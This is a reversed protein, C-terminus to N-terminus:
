IHIVLDWKVSSDWVSQYIYHKTTPLKHNEKHDIDLCRSPHDHSGTELTRLNTLVVKRPGSPDRVLARLRYGFILKFQYFRNNIIM